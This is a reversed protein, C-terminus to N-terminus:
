STIAQLESASLKRNWIRINKISGNLYQTADWFGVRIDAGPNLDGDFASAGASVSGNKSLSVSAGGWTSALKYATNVAITQVPSAVIQTTGDYLAINAANVYLPAGSPYTTGVVGFVSNMRTPTTIEAYVTGAAGLLNGASPYTLVNANRVVALTTTPVYPGAFAGLNVM